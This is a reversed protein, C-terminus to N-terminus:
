KNSEKELLKNIVATRGQLFNIRAIFGVYSRVTIYLKDDITIGKSEIFASDFDQKAQEEIKESETM